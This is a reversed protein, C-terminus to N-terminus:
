LTMLVKAQGLPERCGTTFSGSLKMENQRESMAQGGSGEKTVNQLNGVQQLLAGQFM